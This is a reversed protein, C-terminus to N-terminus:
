TSYQYTPADDGLEEVEVESLGTARDDRKGQLRLRNERVFYLWLLGFLIVALGVLSLSIAHGRM